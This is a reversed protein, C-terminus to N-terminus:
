LSVLYPGGTTLGVTWLIAGAQGRAKLGFWLGLWCVAAVHLFLGVMGIALSVAYQLRYGPPMSLSSIGSLGNM